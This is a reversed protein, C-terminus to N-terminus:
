SLGVATVVCVVTRIIIRVYYLTIEALHKHPLCIRKKLIQKKTRKPPPGRMVLPKSITKVDTVPIRCKELKKKLKMIKENDEAKIKVGLSASKWKEMFPTMVGDNKAAM